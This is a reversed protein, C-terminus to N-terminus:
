HSVCSEIREIVICSKHGPSNGMHLIFKEKQQQATQLAPLLDIDGLVYEAFNASNQSTCSELLRNVYLGSRNWFVTVMIKPKNTLQRAV